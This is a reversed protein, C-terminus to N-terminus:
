GQTLEMIINSATNFTLKPGLSHPFVNSQQSQTEAKGDKTNKCELLPIQQLHPGTHVQRAKTGGWSSM